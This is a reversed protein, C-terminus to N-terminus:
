NEAQLTWDIIKTGGFPTDFTAVCMRGSDTIVAIYLINLITNGSVRQIPRWDLWSVVNATTCGTIEEYLAPEPTDDLTFYHNGVVGSQSGFNMLGELYGSETLRSFDLEFTEYTGLNVSLSGRYGQIGQGSGSYQTPIDVSAPAIREGSIFSYGQALSIVGRKIGPPCTSDEYRQAWRDIEGSLAAAEFSSLVDALSCPDSQAQASLNATLLIITVLIFLIRRYM